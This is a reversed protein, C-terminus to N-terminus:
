MQKLQGKNELSNEDARNKDSSFNTVYRELVIELESNKGTLQETRNCKEFKKKHCGTSLTSDWSALSSEM